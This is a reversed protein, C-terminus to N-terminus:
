SSVKAQAAILGDAMQRLTPAAFGRPAAQAAIALQYCGYIAAMLGAALEKAQDQVRAEDVLVGRVLEEMIQLDIRLASCYAARVEPRKVAEAGIAVWCAVALPEADTGLAVHADLLAYLRARPSSAKHERREYRQRLRESLHEILALLIEQKSGFHYHVIGSALGAAEAIANISAGDYGQEAMVKLLGEVIQARREATNSSRGM